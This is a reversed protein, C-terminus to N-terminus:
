LIHCMQLQKSKESANIVTTMVYQHHLMCAIVALSVTINICTSLTFVIVKQSEM